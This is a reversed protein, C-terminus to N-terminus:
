TTEIRKQVRLDHLARIANLARWGDQPKVPVLSGLGILASTLGMAHAGLTWLPWVLALNVFPGALAVALDHVPRLGAPPQVVGIGASAPFRAYLRIRLGLAVATLAHGLEHAVVIALVIAITVNDVNSRTFPEPCRERGAANATRNGFCVELIQLREM